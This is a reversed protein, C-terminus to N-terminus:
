KLRVKLTYQSQAVYNTYTVYSACLFLCCTKQVNTENRHFMQPKGPNETNKMKLLSTQKETQSKKKFSIQLFGGEGEKIYIM